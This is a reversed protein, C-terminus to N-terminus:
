VHAWSFLLSDARNKDNQLKQVM